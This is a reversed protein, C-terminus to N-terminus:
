LSIKFKEQIKIKAVRPLKLNLYGLYLSRRIQIKNSKYIYLKERTIVLYFVKCIHLWPLVREGVNFM